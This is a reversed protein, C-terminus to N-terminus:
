LEHRLRRLAFRPDAPESRELLSAASACCPLEYLVRARREALRRGTTDQATDGGDASDAAMGAADADARADAAPGDVPWSAPLAPAEPSKVPLDAADYAGPWSVFALRHGTVAAADRDNFAVVSYPGNGDYTVFPGGGRIDSAFGVVERGMRVALADAVVSAISLTPADPGITPGLLLPALREDHGLRALYAGLTGMAIILAVHRIQGATNFFVIGDGERVLADDRLWAARDLLTYKTREVEDATDRAHETLRPYNGRGAVALVVTNCWGTGSPVPGGHIMEIRPDDRKAGLLSRMFSAAQAPQAVSHWESM